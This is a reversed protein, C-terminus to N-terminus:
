VCDQSASAIRPPRLVEIWGARIGAPQAAAAARCSKLLREDRVILVGKDPCFSGITRSILDRREGFQVFLAGVMSEGGFHDGPLREDILNESLLVDSIELQTFLRPVIVLAGACGVQRWGRRTLWNRRPEIVVSRFLVGVGVNGGGVGAHIPVAVLVIRRVGRGITRARRAAPLELLRKTRQPELGATESRARINEVPITTFLSRDNM